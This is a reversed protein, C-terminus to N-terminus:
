KYYERQQSFRKMRRRWAKYSSRKLNQRLLKKVDHERLAYELEIDKFSIKDSLAM